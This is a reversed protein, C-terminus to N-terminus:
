ETRRTSDLGGTPSSKEGVVPEAMLRTIAERPDLAQLADPIVEVRAHSLARGEFRPPRGPATAMVAQLEDLHDAAESLRRIQTIEGSEGNVQHGRYTLAYWAASWGNRALYTQLEEPSSDVPPGAQHRALDRLARPMWIATVKTKLVIGSGPPGIPAPVDSPPGAWMLGLVSAIVASAAGVTWLLNVAATLVTSRTGRERFPDQLTSPLRRDEPAALAPRFALGQRRSDHARRREGSTSPQRDHSRSSFRM